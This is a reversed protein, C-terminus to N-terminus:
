YKSYIKTTLERGGHILLFHPLLHLNELLSLLLMDVFVREVQWIVFLFHKSNWFNNLGFLQSRLHLLYYNIWWVSTFHELPEICLVGVGQNLIFHYGWHGIFAGFTIVSTLKYSLSLIICLLNFLIWGYFLNMYGLIM